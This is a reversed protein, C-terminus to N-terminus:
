VMAFVVLGIYVGVISEGLLEGRDSGGGVGCRLDSQLREDVEMAAPM